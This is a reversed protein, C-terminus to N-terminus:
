KFRPKKISDILDFIVPIIVLSLITSTVLGSIVTMAMPAKFGSDGGFSFIIPLMGAIMAITTMIIPRARKECADLIADRRSNGSNMSIIIYDVLLISNKTVIGMLMLIGILSPLSFSYGFLVLSGLAGCVALPLAALITVPQKFDNFLLALVFYICVIGSIIALIFGELMEQIFEADGSPVKEVGNPLHKMIPLKNIVGDVESLNRGQLGINFTVSKQRDIRTINVPGNGITIDAVNSLPVTGDDGSIRLSGLTDLSRVSNKDLEVLVPIQRDPLDIKALNISYDGSTAIRIVQGMNFPTVGLEAAHNFHPKIFIEPRTLNYDSNINGINPIKRIEKEIEKATNQLLDGDNSSLVMTYLEGNGQSNSFKAGPIKLLKNQIINELEAQSKKRKNIDVLNFTLVGNTVSGDVAIDEGSQVGSGIKSYLSKIEPMNRTKLYAQQMVNVMTNIESGPPVQVNLVIQSQDEAPFFTTPIFVLLVISCLFFGVVCLMTKLRHALCWRVIELYRLMFKGSKHEIHSNSKMFHAAMMPTLLRAVLLSFLIAIAATWGFQSFIKGPVGGMFATPLFVAVLTFSTAVVATSIEQTANIAAQIPSQKREQLHRAINEVEVIADDVLVGIVLTIALLSITNLSFGLWYIVVFTPIISLPLATASIVTARWDRLFLWVVIIALICGEYLTGMSSSYNEKIPKVSNSIEQIHVNPHTLGFANIKQRVLNAVALESSNRAPYVQFATISEGNLFAMQRIEAATDLVTAVNGLRVNYGKSLPITLNAIDDASNIYQLEQITQESHAINARGGSFNQRVTYLQNSVNNITTNLAILKTPDLLVQIERDVGGQRTIKGVGPVSLLLKNLDNDIFWSLDFRDMNGSIQYTLIPYDSINVRAVVPANTGPPFQNQIKSVSDKVDEVAVQIDKDLSFEITTLSSGDTINSTIHRVSSINAVSNEIKRTVQEELQAPTAGPLSISVTVTPFDMNPFNQISIKYFAILGAFTLLIFLIMVPTPRKIAWASINM